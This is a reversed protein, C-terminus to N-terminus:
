DEFRDLYIEIDNRCYTNMYIELGDFTYKELGNMTIYIYINKQLLSCGSYM